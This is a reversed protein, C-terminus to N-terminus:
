RWYDEHYSFNCNLAVSQLYQHMLPQFQFEPVIYMGWLHSAILIDLIGLESSKYYPTLSKELEQLTLELNQIFESRKQVLKSFPGRKVEKKTQFYERSKSNFEPTWMWYPMALSHVDSGIKSLLSDLDSIEQSMKEISFRGETDLEKIIDLSENLTKSGIQAIPLMKVGTLDTPTDIDNYPLIVSEYTHKLLGAAMRVRVCFPCHVYHYLKM